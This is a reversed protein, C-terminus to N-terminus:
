ECKEIERYKTQIEYHTEKYNFNWTGEIYIHVTEYLNQNDFVYYYRDTHDPIFSFDGSKVDREVFYPQYSQGDKWANFNKQDFIFFNITPGSDVRFNGTVRNKTKDDIDYIQSLHFFYGTPVYNYEEFDVSDTIIPVTVNYPESYNKCYIINEDNSISSIFIVVMVVSIVVITIPIVSENKM